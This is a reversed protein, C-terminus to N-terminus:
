KGTQNSFSKDNAIKQRVRRTFWGLRPTSVWGFAVNGPVSLEVVTGGSPATTVRLKAGIREARERMGALGWHGDRGSRLIEPQIGCGDDRILLQLRRASYMLEVEIKRAHAHRFANILAERGIRYVEDRLGPHLPRREGDVKVHFDVGDTEAPLMEKRIAAFSDELNPAGASSRLGRVADRGEDIVRRMVDLAHTLIPKAGEDSPLLDAAVHVHMSASLFGQLLTDHLEQAIRTRESLREEFALNLTRAVQRVRLRYIAIIALACVIVLMSRFWWTQWARPVIEFRLKEEAGNWMGDSNSALVHFTYPGPALNTYVAERISGPASWSQEFGELRYRYQVREPVALSVGIFDFTIRQASSPIRLLHGHDLARGDATVSEVHVIAPASPTDIRAPDVMSIGGHLSFWIRGRSDRVVSRQRRVGDTGPLGDAPGFERVAGPGAADGLLNARPVRLVHTSTAIWLYGRADDAIGTIEDLLAAPPHQVPEARGGRIFALGSDMGIWLVGASDETLCNIRGPPIESAGSWPNWRDNAFWELGNPTAIWITGDARETIASVANSLLGDATTYRTLRGSKLRILGSNLTGAWVTGDRARYVSYISDPVPYSQAVFSAGRDALRILGARQTGVWLEAPGGAISYVLDRGLAPALATKHDSENLYALGRSSPGYWVRGAEDAYVPGENDDTAATAADTLFVTDRYRELGDSGGVWLSGERDEFLAHIERGATQNTWDDASAGEPDIRVLGRRTGAWLNSDRDRCLALVETQRLVPPVSAEVIKGGDWHMLGADTGIWLEGGGVVLLCNIKRDPVQQRPVRQGPPIAYLGALTGLWITRDATETMSTILPMPHLPLAVLHTLRGDGYRVPDGIGGFLVDGNMARGIGGVDYTNVNEVPQEFKGQRYRFLGLRELRIWLNGEADTMLGLVPAAPTTASDTHTSLRFSVGDFRILGKESGIWLYGDATQAIANVSGGPFGSAASWRDHTYQAISRQPDLAHARPVLLAVVIAM